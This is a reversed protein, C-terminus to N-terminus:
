TVRPQERFEPADYERNLMVGDLHAVADWVDVYRTYMPALGFRLLNPERFDGIVRRDILARMIAYGLPHAFSVQSGREAAERPSNLVFDSLVESAQVLEIFTESLLVSKDRLQDLDVNDWLALAAELARYSLVPPTGSQFRLIGPAPEYGPRFAFPEAHGMWGRLPQTANGLHRAAVYLFAPAGPGGNLYKYGSGVALDVDLADLKLPLAGTSHSLDWLMLAGADHVQQTISQMDYLRGSRFDVHTLMVVATNADIAQMLRSGELIVLECRERGLLATLGQAIYLDTPFNDESSLIITRGPRLSLATALLKYLNVSVSDAVIVQGPGAGILPAIKEGLREALGIWDHDNWSGILGQGWQEVVTDHLCGAVAKPLPGLSNGDLYITDPPLVFADRYRALPDIRDAELCQARTMPM